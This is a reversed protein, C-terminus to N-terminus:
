LLGEEQFSFYSKETLILHDMLIIDMAECAEKIKETIDVDQRSPKLIGSPHNHSIIIGTASVLLAEKLLLRVDVLTGTIGGKSLQVTNIIKNSNNLYIIWFEEHPLDGIRAQMYKYVDLSTKVGQVPIAKHLRKRRGLELAAVISVAKASGIGRFRSLEPISLRSLISLNNNSRKLIRKSLDVASESQNGSGIIIAILEADSLADKGKLLMKERPRDDASWDKITNTPTKMKM